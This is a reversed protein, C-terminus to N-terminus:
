CLSKLMGSLQDPTMGLAMLTLQLDSSFRTLESTGKTNLKAGSADKGTILLKHTDMLARSLLSSCLRAQEETLTKM